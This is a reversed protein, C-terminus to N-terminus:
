AADKQFDRAGYEDDEGGRDEAADQRAEMEMAQGEAWTDDMDPGPDDPDDQTSEGIPWGTAAFEAAEAQDRRRLLWGLLAEDHGAFDSTEYEGPGYDPRTM